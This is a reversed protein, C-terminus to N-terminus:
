AGGGCPDDPPPPAPPPKPAGTGGEMDDGYEDTERRPVERDMQDDVADRQAETLMNGCRELDSDANAAATMCSVAEAPWADAECRTTLVRVLDPHQAETYLDETAALVITVMNEAAAACANM